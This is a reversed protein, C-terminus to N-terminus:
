EATVCTFCYGDTIECFCRDKDYSINYLESIIGEGSCKLVAEKYTWIRFFREAAEGEAFDSNLGNGNSIFEIEDKNCVRKILNLSIKRIKEVDIGVERHRNLALAVIDESHSFNFYCDGSDLYLKGGQAKYFSLENEPTKTEEAIVKRALMDAAICLMKDKDRSYERCKEQRQRSMLFYAAEYESRSISKINVKYIRTGNSPDIWISKM